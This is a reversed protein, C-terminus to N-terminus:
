DLTGPAGGNPVENIGDATEVDLDALESGPPRGSVTFTAMVSLTDIDIGSNADAMGFQLSTFGSIDLGARPKSLTLTPKLDDLFWGFADGPSGEATDIPFGLDIWRAFMIKEDITLLPVGGGPPPMITGTFDLDAQNPHAGVPLTAPDGPTTETPHDANSWGDLRQGFLKWILLSRRSQFMRIYRSANTQRWVPGFTIVPPYGWDANQDDALRKYDGPLGGYMALDDLVLNGPPDPDNQTHCSVCSRQLIPRIDRYFEVDALPQQLVVLDPDGAGDHTLLPTEKSLDFLEYDPLAAATQEFEL